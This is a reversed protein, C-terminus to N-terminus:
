TRKWLTTRNEAFPPQVIKGFWAPDISFRKEVESRFAAFGGDDEGALIYRGAEDFTFGLCIEDISFLDHKLAFVERVDDWRIPIAPKEYPVIAFGEADFRVDRKLAKGSMRDRIKDLLKM